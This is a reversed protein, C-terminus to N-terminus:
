LAPFRASKGSARLLRVAKKDFSVFEEAGRQYSDFAMVGDAFDGGAEFMALGAKVALMDVVVNESDLLVLISRLIEDRSVGYGQQLVWVLECLSPVSIIVQEADSLAAEAAVSQKRDDGMLARVLVNTDVGIRL